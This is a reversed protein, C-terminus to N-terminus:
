VGDRALEVARLLEKLEMQYNRHAIRAKERIQPALEYSAAGGELLDCTQRILHLAFSNSEAIVAKVRAEIVGVRHGNGFYRKYVSLYYKAWKALNMVGDHSGIWDVFSDVIIPYLENVAEDLFNYDDFGKRGILRGEERLKAEIQIEAYPRMKGFGLPSSGDGIIQELLDLNRRISECTTSPDFLMFGYDYRVGLEKLMEVGQLISRVDMRKNMLRLGENTGSEIGLYVLFLGCENMQRILTCLEHVSDIEKILM